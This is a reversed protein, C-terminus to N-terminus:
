AAVPATPDYVERAQRKWEAFTLRAHGDDWYGRLEESAYARAHTDSMQWLAVPDAVVKTGDPREALGRRSLLNGRCHAEAALFEAEVYM